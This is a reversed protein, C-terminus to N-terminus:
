YLSCFGYSRPQVQDVPQLHAVIEDRSLTLMMGRDDNVGYAVIYNTANSPHGLAELGTPFYVGAHHAPGPPVPLLAHSLRTIRHPPKAEFTYFFWFYDDFHHMPVYTSWQSRLFPRDNVTATSRLALYSHPCFPAGLGRPTPGAAGGGKRRKRGGAAGSGSRLRPFAHHFCEAHAVLHGVALYEKPEVGPGQQAAPFPVAPTGGRFSLGEAEFYRSLKAIAPVPTSSAPEHTVTANESSAPGGTLSGWDLVDHPEFSPYHTYSMLDSGHWPVWNKDQFQMKSYVYSRFPEMQIDYSQGTPIIKLEILRMQKPIAASNTMFQQLLLRGSGSRFLRTDFLFGSPLSYTRSFVQRALLERPEGSEMDLRVVAVVFYDPGQHWLHSHWPGSPSFVSCRSGAREKAPLQAIHVRGGGKKSTSLFVLGRMM